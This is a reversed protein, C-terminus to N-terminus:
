QIRNRPEQDRGPGFGAAHGAETRLIILGGVEQRAPCTFCYTGLLTPMGADRIGAARELAEDPVDVVISVEDSDNCGLKSM